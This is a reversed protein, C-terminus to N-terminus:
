ESATAARSSGSAAAGEGIQFVIKGEGHHSRGERWGKAVESIPYVEGVFPKIEGADVLRAIKQLTHASPETLLMSAEVHYKTALDAPPPQVISVLVGGPMLARFSRQLVEGGVADLVVDVDKASNEFAEKEYDIVQDAGYRKVRELDTAAATGIVKAGRQHALQVAVSGVAGGAGHILVIQGKDVRGRDLAQLATQAVLALSASEVHNLTKPKFAVKDADVAIYEAFAAGESVYGFVEDGDRFTTVGDGVSDVVGSFDGGPIFPFQLPFIQKMTGSTRKLDIPNLSSALVRVVVQGKGAKPKPVDVMHLHSEDGYENMQIAKM